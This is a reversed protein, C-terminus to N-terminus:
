YLDSAVRPWRSTGEPVASRSLSSEACSIVRTALEPVAASGEELLSSWTGIFFQLCADALERQTQKKSSGWWGLAHHPIGDLLFAVHARFRSKSSRVAKADYSWQLAPMGQPIHFGQGGAHPLGLVSSCSKWLDIPAFLLLQLLPAERLRFSNRCCPSLARRM